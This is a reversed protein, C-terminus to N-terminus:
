SAYVNFRAVTRFGMREYLRLGAETSQLVVPRSPREREAEALAHRMVAEGYGRRRFDPVTAVNYVGVIEGSLPTPRRGADSGADNEGGSIVTATTAVPVGDVYGVYGAFREWVSDHDFVENFWVIPVHFCVAGIARFDAGTAADGVRRVEIEPLWRTPPNVKEAVMGPLEVTHRLGHREFVQRSRRQAKASLWDECVWYSWELGRTNFQMSPLLIRRELEAETEVPGSLFAANFMQFEVGASAISVGPLERVEGAKRSGAIVRFSERLNEAVVEFTV